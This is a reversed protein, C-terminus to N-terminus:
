VNNWMEELAADYDIIDEDEEEEGQEDREDQEVEEEEDDDEEGGKEDYREHHVYHQCRPQAAQQRGTRHHHPSNNSHYPQGASFSTSLRLANRSSRQGLTANNAAISTSRQRRVTAASTFAMSNNNDRSVKIRHSRYNKKPKLSLHDSSYSRENLQSSQHDDNYNDYGQGEENADNEADYNADHNPLYHSYLEHNRHLCSQQKKKKKKKGYNNSSSTKILIPVIPVVEQRLLVVDTIIPLDMGEVILENYDEAIVIPLHAFRAGENGDDRRTAADEDHSTIKEEENATETALRLLYSSTSSGPDNDNDNDDHNDDGDDYM